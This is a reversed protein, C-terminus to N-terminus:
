CFMVSVRKMHLPTFADYQRQVDDKFVGLDREGATAACDNVCEGLLAALFTISVAAVVPQALSGFFSGRFLSHSVALVAAASLM